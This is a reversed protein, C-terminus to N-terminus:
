VARPLTMMTLQKLHLCCLPPPPQIIVMPFHQNNYPLLLPLPLDPPTRCHRLLRAPHPHIITVPKVCASPNTCNSALFRWWTKRVIPASYKEVAEAITNEDEWGFSRTANCADPLLTTQCGCLPSRKESKLLKGRFKRVACPVRTRPNIQPPERM